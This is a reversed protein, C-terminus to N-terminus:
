DSRVVEMDKRVEEELMEVLHERIGELTHMLPDITRIRAALDKRGLADEVWKSFDDIGSGLRVRAEYFHYFISPLDIYKIGILFEALNNARLGAPFLLIIAEKFYFENGPVTERPEPFRQLYDDIVKLLAKRLGDIDKFLFPDINSFYESLASEELSEGAWHAFDNSYELIQRKLYYQYTHHYLSEDSIIAILNRLERLNKAKRGTSKMISICERFEFPDIQHQGREELTSVGEEKESSNRWTNL